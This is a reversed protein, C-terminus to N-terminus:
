VLVLKFSESLEWVLKVQREIIIKILISILSVESIALRFKTDAEDSGIKSFNFNTAVLNKVTEMVYLSMQTDDTVKALAPYAPLEDIINAHQSFETLWGWSDGAALGYVAGAVRVNFSTM